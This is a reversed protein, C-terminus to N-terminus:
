DRRCCRASRGDCVGYHHRVLSPIGQGVAGRSLAASVISAPGSLTNVVATMVEHGHNHARATVLQAM